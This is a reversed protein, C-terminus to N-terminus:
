KLMGKETFIWQQGKDNAKCSAVVLSVPSTPTAVAEAAVCLKTKTNKLQKTDAMLHLPPKILRACCLFFSFNLRAGQEYVFQQADAFNCFSIQLGGQVLQLCM